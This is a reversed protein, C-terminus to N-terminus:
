AETPALVHMVPACRREFRLAYKRDKIQQIAEDATHNVKLEIIIADDNKVFPKGRGTGNKERVNRKLEVLPVLEKIIETKDVYYTLFFDEQFLGYASTGNLYVGDPRWAGKGCCIDIDFLETISITGYFEWTKLCSSNHRERHVM